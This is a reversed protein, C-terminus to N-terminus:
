FDAKDGKALGDCFSRYLPIEEPLIGNPDEEISKSNIEEQVVMLSPLSRHKEHHNILLTYLHDFLISNFCEPSLDDKHSLYFAEDQYLLLLLTLQFSISFREDNTTEPM